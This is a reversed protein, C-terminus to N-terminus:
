LHALQLYWNPRCRYKVSSLSNIQTFAMGRNELWFKLIVHRVKVRTFIAHGIRAFNAQLFHRVQVHPQSPIFKRACHEGPLNAWCFTLTISRTSGCCEVQRDQRFMVNNAVESGVLFLFLMWLYSSDNCNNYWLTVSTQLYVSFMWCM